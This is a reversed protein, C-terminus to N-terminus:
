FFTLAAPVTSLASFVAGWVGNEAVKERDRDHWHQQEAGTVRSSWIGGDGGENM